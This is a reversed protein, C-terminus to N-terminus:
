AEYLYGRAVSRFAEVDADRAADDVQLEEALLSAVTPAAEIAARADLFLARTRRALVDEVTRAMECRAAWVVEAKLYPLRPHLREGLELRAESLAMLEPLDAGYVSQASAEAPPDTEATWGRLRLSLTQSPTPPLSATEAARDIADQGMRRYTTWKGGIVTILGTASVLVKHDRALKATQGGSGAAVLPRLGSWTSLVDNGRLDRGLYKQVHEALFAREGETSHPERSSGAVPVDTTGVVLHENWPIAFLVRGDSTKPVMLATDGPLFERPVVVHTGQSVSLLKERKAPSAQQMALVEEAFAGTANVVVKAVIEM